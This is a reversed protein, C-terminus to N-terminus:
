ELTYVSRPRSRVSRCERYHNRDGTYMQIDREFDVVSVLDSSRGRGSVKCGWRYLGQLNLASKGAGKMCSSM